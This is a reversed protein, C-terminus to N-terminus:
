IYSDEVFNAEKDGAFNVAMIISMFIMLHRSEKLSAIIEGIKCNRM